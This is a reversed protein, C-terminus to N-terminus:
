LGGRFVQKDEGTEGEYTPIAGCDEQSKGGAADGATQSRHGQDPRHLGEQEEGGGRRLRPIGLYSIRCEVCCVLTCSHIELSWPRGYVKIIKVAEQYIIESPKPFVNM